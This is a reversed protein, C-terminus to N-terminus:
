VSFALRHRGQQMCRRMRSRFGAKEKSMMGGEAGGCHDTKDHEAGRNAAVQKFWHDCLDDFSNQPL